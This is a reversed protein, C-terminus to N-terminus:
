FCRRFVQLTFTSKKDGITVSYTGADEVRLRRISLAHGNECAAFRTKFKDEFFILRPPSRFVVTVIPDSGFSWLAVSSDPNHSRFTVSGGVAGILERTDSSSTTQHLLILIALRPIWFVDM